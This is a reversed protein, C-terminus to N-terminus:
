LENDETESQQAEALAVNEDLESIREEPIAEMNITENLQVEPPLMADVFANNAELEQPTDEVNNFMTNIRTTCARATITICELMPQMCVAIYGRISQAYRDKGCVVYLMGASLLAMATISPLAIEIDSSRADIRSRMTTTETTTDQPKAVIDALLRLEKLRHICLLSYNETANFPMFTTNDSLVSQVCVRDCNHLINLYTNNIYAHLNTYPTIKTNVSVHTHEPDIINFFNYQTSLMEALGFSLRPMHTVHLMSQRSLITGLFEDQVSAIPSYALSLAMSIADSEESDRVTRQKTHVYTVYYHEKNQADKYCKLVYNHQQAKLRIGDRQYHLVSLAQGFFTYESLSHEYSRCQRNIEGINSQLRGVNIYNRQGTLPPLNHEPFGM